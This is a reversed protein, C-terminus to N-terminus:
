DMSTKFTQVVVDIAISGLGPYRSSMYTAHPLYGAAIIKAMEWGREWPREEEWGKSSWLTPPLSARPVLNAM